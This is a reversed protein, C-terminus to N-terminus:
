GITKEPPPLEKLYLLELLAGTEAVEFYCFEGLEGLGGSQVLVRGQELLEAKAAHLADRTPYALCTHHFGVGKDRLHEVYVSDGSVPALLEFFADGVKALAVRFSFPVNRGRVECTEPQITWVSWPKMALSDALAQAVLDVDHVLFCTHHFVGSDAVGM